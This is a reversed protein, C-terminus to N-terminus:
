SYRYKLEKYIKIYKEVINEISVKYLYENFDKYDVRKTEDFLKTLEEENEFEFLIKDLEKYEKKIESSLINKKIYVPVKCSLAYILSGSNTIQKFPLVVAKASKVLKELEIDEVYRDKFVINQKDKLKNLLVQKYDNNTCKGIVKFPLKKNSKSYAEIAMDVGKYKSIGGFFLFYEKKRDIYKHLISCYNHHPIWILKHHIRKNLNYKQFQSHIIIKDVNNFLFRLLCKEINKNKGHHTFQLSNHLTWVIKAGRLKLIWVYLVFVSSAGLAKLPSHNLYANLWHFHFVDVKSLIGAFRNERHSLVEIDNKELETYLIENYPNPGTKPWALVKM